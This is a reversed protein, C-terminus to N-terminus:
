RVKRFLLLLSHFSGHQQRQREGRSRERGVVPKSADLTFSGSDFGGNDRQAVLHVLVRLKGVALFLGRAQDCVEAALETEFHPGADRVVPDHREQAAPFGAGGDRDPGVHVREGHGLLSGKWELRGYPGAVQTLFDSDHVGAPVVDVRRDLESDGGDQGRQARVERSRDCEDELGGFLSRRRGLVAAGAHHDGLSDQLVRLRPRDEAQM